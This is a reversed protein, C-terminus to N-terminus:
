LFDKPLQPRVQEAPGVARVHGDEMWVIVDALKLHSPRHTVLFVTTEGRLKDVRSM